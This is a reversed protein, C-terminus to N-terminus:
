FVVLVSLTLDRLVLVCTLFVIGKLSKNFLKETKHVLIGM